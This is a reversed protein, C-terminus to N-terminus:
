SRVLMKLAALIKATFVSATNRAKSTRATRVRLPKEGIGGEDCIFGVGKPTM